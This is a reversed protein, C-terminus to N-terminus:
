KSPGRSAKMGAEIRAVNTELRAQNTELREFKKDLREFKQEFKTELRELNELLKQRFLKEEQGLLQVMSPTTHTTKIAAVMAGIKQETDTDASIASAAAKNFHAHLEPTTDIAERQM